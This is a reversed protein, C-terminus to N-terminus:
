SLMITLLIIYETNYYFLRPGQEFIYESVYVCVCVCVCVCMFILLSVQTAYSILRTKQWVYWISEIFCYSNKGHKPNKPKLKNLSLIQSNKLLDFEIRNESNKDSRQILQYTQCLFRLSLFGCSLIRKLIHKCVIAFVLSLNFYIYNRSDFFKFSDITSHKQDKAPTQLDLFFFDLM